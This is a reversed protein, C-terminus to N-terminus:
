NLACEFKSYGVVINNEDPIHKISISHHSVSAYPLRRLLFFLRIELITQYAFSKSLYSHAPNSESLWGSLSLAWWKWPKNRMMYLRIQTNM